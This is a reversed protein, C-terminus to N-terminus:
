KNLCCDYTFNPDQLTIIKKIIQEDNREKISWYLDIKKTDIICSSIKGDPSVVIDNNQKCFNQDLWHTKVFDCACKRLSVKAGWSVYTNEDKSTHFNTQLTFWKKELFPIISSNTIFRHDTKPSLELYKLTINHQQIFDLIKEIYIPSTFYDKLLTSNIRIDMNPYTNKMLLINSLIHEISVNKWIITEYIEQQLTHLSINIRDLSWINDINKDIFYWNTVMSLFAWKEKLPHLINEIYKKLLPEWWSLTVWHLPIINKVMDYLYLYDDVTLLEKESGDCWEKHCFGCNYNCKQTLIYRLDRKIWSGDLEKKEAQVNEQEFHKM